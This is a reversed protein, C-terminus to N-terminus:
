RDNKYFKFVKLKIMKEKTEKESLKFAEIPTISDWNIENYKM